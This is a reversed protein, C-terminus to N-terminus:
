LMRLVRARAARVGAEYSGGFLNVHVLLPYLQYLDRRGADYLPSLSTADAYAEYFEPAFGGFLATMALDVESHGRYVAPDIVVPEGEASPYVNGSWLDGHLLSPSQAPVDELVVPLRRELTRWAEQDGRLFGSDWALRLQPELRRLWWFSAWDEEWANAQPLSGIYNDGHWGFPGASPQHLEVLGSALRLWFEPSPRGAPIFDLLLWSPGGPSAGVGLVEPTRLGGQDRLADLGAAETVFMSDPAQTNWKVFVNRGDDLRLRASPNICGGSVRTANEVRPARDSRDALTREVARVIEDPPLATM